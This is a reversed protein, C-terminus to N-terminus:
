SDERNLKKDTNTFLDIPTASKLNRDEVRLTNLFTM